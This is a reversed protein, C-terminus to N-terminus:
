ALTVEPSTFAVAFAAAVASARDSGNTTAAAIGAATDASWEVVGFRRFLAAALEAGDGGAAALRLEDGVPTDAEALYWGIEDGVLLRGAARNSGLWARNHPWGGVNPPFGPWQGMGEFWGLLQLSVHEDGLAAEVEDLTRDAIDVTPIEFGRLTRCLIEVPQGVLGSRVEDAYFRPHTLLARLLDDIRLRSALATALEDLVGDSPETGAYRLWFRGAVFRHCEPREVVIGVIDEVDFDGRRGLFTKAGYDHLAPDLRADVPRDARPDYRLGYGTLARAAEVVDAQTYGNGAGMSFLELLERAYNENPRGVVSTHLDLWVNMAPDHTMAVLLDDLRGMALRRLTVWQRHLLDAFEVKELSTAFHGHWFWLLRELAPTPSTVALHVFWLLLAEESYPAEGRSRGPEGAPPAGSVDLLRDVSAEIGERAVRDIEAGTGGWGVRRLLHAANRRSPEVVMRGLM